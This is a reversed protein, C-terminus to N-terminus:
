AWLPEAVLVLVLRRGGRTPRRRTSACRGATPRSARTSPAGPWWGRTRWCWWRTTSGPRPTGSWACATPLRRAGVAYRCGPGRVAASSGRPRMRRAGARLGDPGAGMHDPGIEAFPPTTLRAQAPDGGPRPQRGGDRRSSRRSPSPRFSRRPSGPSRSRRPSRTGSRARILRRGRGVDQDLRRGPLRLRIKRRRWARPAVSVSRTSPRSQITFTGKGRSRVKRGDKQPCPDTPHSFPVNM